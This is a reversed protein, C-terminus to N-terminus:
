RASRRTPREAIYQDLGLVPAPPRAPPPPAPPPAPRQVELRGIHVHIPANPEGRDIAEVVSPQTLVERHDLRVLGRRELPEGGDFAVRREHIEVPQREPRRRRDANAVGIRREIVIPVQEIEVVREVVPVNVIDHEVVRTATPASTLDPAVFAETADTRRERVPAIAPPAMPAVVREIPEPAVSGVQVDVSGSVVLPGALPERAALRDPQLTLPPRTGRDSRHAPEGNPGREATPVSEAGEAPSPRVAQPPVEVHQEVLGASAAVRSPTGVREFRSRRRPRVTPTVPAARVTRDVLREILGTM